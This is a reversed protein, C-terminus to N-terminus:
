DQERRHKHKRRTHDAPPHSACFDLVWDRVTSPMPYEEIEPGDNGTALDPFPAASIEAKGGWQRLYLRPSPRAMNDRYAALNERDLKVQDVRLDRSLEAPLTLLATEPPNPPLTGTLIMRLRSLDEPANVNYFPDFPQTPWEVVALKHRSTFDEMRRLGETTVAQWLRDTLTTPWLAFVPHSHGGSAAMAMDARQDQLAARLRPALDTPFLPTDAAATLVWDLGSERAWLLGTLVGVLPGGYGEVVDARIPLRCDVFRDPDGNANLLIPGVQLKLRAIVRDLLSYDGVRLLAKDGGGMRRALGGALVVGAIDDAM